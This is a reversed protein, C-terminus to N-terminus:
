RRGALAKIKRGQEQLFRCVADAGCLVAASFCSFVAACLLVALVLAGLLIKKFKMRM